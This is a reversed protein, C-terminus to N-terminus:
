FRRKYNPNLPFLEKAKLFNSEAERHKRLGSQILYLRYYFSPRLPSAKVAKRYYQEATLPSRKMLMFDAACAWIFPSEPFAEHARKLQRNVMDPTVARFEEPTKLRYDCMNQLRYFEAEGRLLGYGSYLSSVIVSIVAFYWIINFINKTQLSTNERKAGATGCFLLVIGAAVSGAVQINIDALSHLAWASWGIYIMSDLSFPFYRFPISVSKRFFIWAPYFLVALSVLLGATGVQSAFALIFNHPTHPSEDSAIQKLNMYGHFFDGWGVGALPHKLYMLVAVRFYDLRVIMSAIGRESYIAMGGAVALICLAIALTAFKIRKEYSFLLLCSGLAIALALVAARSGTFYFNTLILCAMSSTVAFPVTLGHFIRSCYKWIFWLVPPAVLILYGAFSNCLSFGAFVRRQNLRSEFNGKVFNVGSKLEQEYVFKKTEEFGWLLQYIGDLCSVLLGAALAGLFWYKLSPSNVILRFVCFAFAAIGWFHTIQYRAFIMSGCNLVGIFSVVALLFWLMLPIFQRQNFRPPAPLLVFTFFLLIGSLFDFVAPPWTIILWSFLDDPYLMTTEPLGAIGGFKVPLLFIFILVTIELYALLRETIKKGKKRHGSDNMCLIVGAVSLIFIDPIFFNFRKNKRRAAFKKIKGKDL